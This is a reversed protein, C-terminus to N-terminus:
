HGVDATPATASPVTAPLTPSAPPPTPATTTPATTAPTASWEPIEVGDPKRGPKDQGRISAVFASVQALQNNTLGSEDNPFAPMPPKGVRIFKPIEDIHRINVFYQDTLNLGLNDIGSGDVKHCAACKTAFLSAGAAVQAPDNKLAMLSAADLGLPRAAERREEEAKDQNYAWVASLKGGSVVAIFYYIVSFVFTAVFTWKWWGPMPNDFEQIGDYAHDTLPDAPIEGPQVEHQSM